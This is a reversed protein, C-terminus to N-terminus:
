GDNTPWHLKELHAGQQLNHSTTDCDRVLARCAMTAIAGAAAVGQIVKKGGGVKVMRCCPGM